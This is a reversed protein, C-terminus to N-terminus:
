KSSRPNHSNTSEGPIPGPNTSHPDVSRVMTRRSSANIREMFADLKNEPYLDSPLIEILNLEHEKALQRKIEVGKDYEEVQGILGFYEVWADHDPLYFDCDMKSNPYKKSRSHRINNTSMWEDVTKESLSDCMHGDSSKIRIKQYRSGNPKIGCSVMAKNWTGFYRVAANVLRM